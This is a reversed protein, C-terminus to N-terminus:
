IDESHTSLNHPIAGCVWSLYWNRAGIKCHDDKILDFWNDCRKLLKNPESHRLGGVTSAMKWRRRDMRLGPCCNYVTFKTQATDGYVRRMALLAESDCKEWNACPSSTQMSRCQASHGASVDSQFPVTVVSRASVQGSRNCKRASM